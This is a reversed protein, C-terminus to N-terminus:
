EPYWAAALKRGFREPLEVEAPLPVGESQMSYGWSYAGVNPILLLEGEQLPPLSAERKVVDFSDMIPGLITAPSRPADRREFEITLRAGGHDIFCFEFLGSYGSVDLYVLRRDFIVRDAVVKSLIAMSPESLYRGPESLYDIDQGFHKWLCERILAFFDPHDGHFRDRAGPFGGGVNVSPVAIGDLELQDRVAALQEIARSFPQAKAMGQGATGVFFSLADIQLGADVVKRALDLLAQVTNGFRVVSRTSEGIDPPLLRLTVRAPTGVSRLVRLGREDDVVFRVVGRAAAAAATEHTLVPHVFAIRSPVVGLALLADLHVLNTVNFEDVIGVLQALVRPNANAKTAYSIRGGMKERLCAAADRLAWPVLLLAPTPLREERAWQMLDAVTQQPLM